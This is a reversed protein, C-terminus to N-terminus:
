TLERAVSFNEAAYQLQTCATSGFYASCFFIKNSPRYMLQETACINGMRNVYLGMLMVSESPNTLANMYECFVQTLKM